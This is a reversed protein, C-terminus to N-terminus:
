SNRRNRRLSTFALVVTAIGVYVMRLVLSVVYILLLFGIIEGFTVAM